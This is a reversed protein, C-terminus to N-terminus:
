AALSFEPWSFPPQKKTGTCLTAHQKRSCAKKHAPFPSPALLKVFLDPNHAPRLTWLAHRGSRLLVDYLELKSPATKRALFIFKKELPLYLKWPEARTARYNVICGDFLLPLHNELEHNFPLPPPTCFTHNKPMIKPCIWTSRPAGAPMSRSRIKGRGYDRRMFSPFISEWNPAWYGIAHFDKRVTLYTPRM